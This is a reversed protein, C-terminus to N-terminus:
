KDAADSEKVFSFKLGLGKPAEDHIPHGIQGGNFGPREKNGTSADLKLFVASFLGKEKDVCRIRLRDELKKLVADVKAANDGKAYEPILFRISVEYKKDHVPSTDAIAQAVQHFSDAHSDFAVNAYGSKDTLGKVGTVSKVKKVSETIADVCRGCEVNSVFFTVTTPHPALAKKEAPKKEAPDAAWAPAAFLLAAAAASLMQPSM